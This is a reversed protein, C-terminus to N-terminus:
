LDRYADKRHRIYHITLKKSGDDIAYVIRYEGSRIRYLFEYGTLKVAGNPRPQDALSIIKDFIAEQFKRSIKRLDKEVSPKFSLEYGSM